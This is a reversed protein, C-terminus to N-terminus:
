RAIPVELAQVVVLKSAVPVEVDIAVTDDLYDPLLPPRAGLFANQPLMGSPALKELNDFERTLCPIVHVGRALFGVARHYGDRLLLRDGIRAM